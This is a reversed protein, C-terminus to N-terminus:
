IKFRRIEHNIKNNVEKLNVSVDVLDKSIKDAVEAESVLKESVKMMEKVKENIKISEQVANKSIAITGDLKNKTQTAKEVLANTSEAVRQSKEVTQEMEGRTEVVGQVIMQIVGDIESVSKQTKEALKRVEDAVVAFGRGHEGARAAEIAANLALLNTQDAIDKIMSIIEKIESTQDALTSVKSAIETEAEADKNIVDVVERLSLVLDDLVKQTDIIDESTSLVSEKSHELDSPIESIFQQTKVIEKQQENVSEKTLQADKEVEDTVEQAIAASSRLNVMMDVLKDMFRNINKAIDGIEDNSTVELRQKLDADDSSLEKIKQSLVKISSLIHKNVLFAIIIFILLSIISVVTTSLETMGIARDVEKNANDLLANAKTILADSEKKMMQKLTQEKTHLSHLRELGKQYNKLYVPIGADEELSGATNEIHENLKQLLQLIAQYDKQDKYLLYNKEKIKIQTVLDLLVIQDNLVRLADHTFSKSLSKLANKRLMESAQKAKNINIRNQEILRKSEDVLKSYQTFYKSFSEVNQPMKIDEELTGDTNDIHHAIKKVIARVEKAMEDSEVIFFEDKAEELEFVHDKLEIQDNLVDQSKNIDDLGRFVFVDILVFLIFITGFTYMLKSMLKM